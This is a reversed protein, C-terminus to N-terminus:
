FVQICSHLPQLIHSTHPPLKLKTVNSRIALEVVNLDIHSGHGDYVLLVPREKGLAPIFVKEIYNYFIQTDMWGRQSEAYSLEFDYKGETQAVWSDWVKGKFLFPSIKKVNASVATLVTINERGTGHTTRFSPTGKKEVVKTKSPDLCVSTEDLNWILHPQQELNLEKLTSELM